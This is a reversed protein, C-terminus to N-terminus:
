FGRGHYHTPEDRIRSVWSDHQNERESQLIRDTVYYNRQQQERYANRRDPGSTVMAQQVPKAKEREAVADANNEMRKQRSIGRIGGSVLGAVAGAASGIVMGALMGALIPWGLGAGGIMLMLGVAGGAWFGKRGWKSTGDLTGRVTGQLFQNAYRFPRGADFGAKPVEAPAAPQSVSNSPPPLPAPKTASDNPNAM